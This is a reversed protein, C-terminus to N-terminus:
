VRSDSRTFASASLRRIAWVAAFPAALPFTAPLRGAVTVVGERGERVVGDRDYVAFRSETSSADVRFRATWDLARVLYAGRRGRSSRALVVVRDRVQPTVWIFLAALGALSFVQVDAFVEIAVHFWVALWIAALRSRKWLLGAGIALETVVAAKALASAFGATAAFDIIAEPIGAAMAEGGYREIRLRVVVGGWWDGDILKSIGSALYVAAVQYRLVTLPWRVGTTSVQPIRLSDLSLAGGVPMLATGILLVLLFARNHHFETLTLFLNYGVFGALYWLAPRTFLGVTVLVAAAAAAYLAAFYIAEPLEPYWTAYPAYFGDRYSVGGTASRLFPWLHLLTIPGLLIRLVALPRYDIWEDLRANWSRVAARARTRFTM